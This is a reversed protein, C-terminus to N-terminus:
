GTSNNITTGTPITIFPISNGGIVMPLNGSWKSIAQLQVYAAGGQSQIASAQIKIAEAEGNAQAIRQQAEFQVQSLKNQAALANQQATVKAEIADNFTKSFDFNTISIADVFINSTALRDRLGKEIDDKVASRQTILQEATYKATVAKVVEQVAPQIIVDQYNQGINTYISVIDNSLIHYNVAVDTTVTQLDQSAASAQAAEYKQTQVNMKVISQVIPVKFHLGPTMPTPYAAGFKLLVGRQGAGITYFSGFVIMLILVIVLIWGFIKFGFYEDNM